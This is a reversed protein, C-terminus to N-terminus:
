ILVKYGKKRLIKTVSNDIKDKDIVGKEADKSLKDLLDELESSSIKFDLIINDGSNILDRYLQKKQFIYYFKLGWMNIEDTIVLTNKNPISEIIKKSVTSPKEESDLEGYVKQHGIMISSINNKFCVDFLELDEKTIKQNDPIFHTNKIMGKGPYHKCTGSVNIQLGIIYNKLKDKIEEKTGSFVRGGYAKDKFEAVPAFNINFGIKNLM